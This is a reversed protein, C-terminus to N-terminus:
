LINKEIKMRPRIGLSCSFLLLSFLSLQFMSGETGISNFFTSERWNRHYACNPTMWLTRWCKQVRIRDWRWSLPAITCAPQIDHLLPAKYWGSELVWRISSPPNGETEITLVTQLWGYLINAGKLPLPLCRALGLLLLAAMSMPWYSWVTGAWVAWIVFHWTM